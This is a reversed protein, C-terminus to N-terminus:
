VSVAGIWFRTFNRQFYRLFYLRKKVWNISPRNNPESRCSTKGKRVCAMTSIPIPPFSMPKTHSTKNAWIISRKLRVAMSKMRELISKCMEVRMLIESIESKKILSIFNGIFNKSVLNIPSRNCRMSSWRRTSCNRVDLLRLKNNENKVKRTNPM